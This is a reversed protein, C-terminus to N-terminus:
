LLHFYTSEFYHSCFFFLFFFYFNHNEQAEGWGLFSFCPPIWLSYAQESIRLKASNWCFGILILHSILIKESGGLDEKKERDDRAEEKTERKVEDDM